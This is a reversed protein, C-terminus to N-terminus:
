HSSGTSRKVDNIYENLIDATACPDLRSDYRFCYDQNGYIGNVATDRLSGPKWGWDIGSGDSAEGNKDLAFNEYFPSIYSCLLASYEDYNGSFLAKIFSPMCAKVADALYGDPITRDEVNEGQANRIAYNGNGKIYVIPVAGAPRAEASVAPAAASFLLLATM